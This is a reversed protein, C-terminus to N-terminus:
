STAVADATVQGADRTRTQAGPARPSATVAWLRRLRNQHWRIQQVADLSDDWLFGEFESHIRGTYGVGRLRAILEADPICPDQGDPGVSFFKAQVHRLYPRVDDLGAVEGTRFLAYSIHATQIAAGRGAPGLDPAAALEGVLDPLSRRQSWSVAILDMAPRPTGGTVADAAFPEPIARVFASFDQILGLGPCDLRDLEAVLGAVCPDTRPETGIEVLLTMGTRDALAALRRLVAPTATNIRVAPFGLRRALDIEPEVLALAQDPDVVRHRDRARELYACYSIPVVGTRDVARRFRRIEDDSVRPYGTLSQAGIMEIGQDPGLGAIQDLSQPLDVARRRILGGLSFLMVGLSPETM